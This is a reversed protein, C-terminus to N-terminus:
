SNSVNVERFGRFIYKQLNNANFLYLLKLLHKSMSAAAAQLMM